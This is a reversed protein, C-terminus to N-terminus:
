VIVNSKLIAVIPGSKLIHIEFIYNRARFSSHVTFDQGIFVAENATIHWHIGSMQFSVPSLQTSFLNQTVNSKRLPSKM